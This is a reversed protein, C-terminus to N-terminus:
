SPRRRTGAGPDVERMEGHFTRLQPQCMSRAPKRLINQAIEEFSGGGSRTNRSNLKKDQGLHGSLSFFFQPREKNSQQTCPRYNVTVRVGLERVLYCLALPLFPIYHLHNKTYDAKIKYMGTLFFHDYRFYGLVLRTYVGPSELFTNAKRLCM